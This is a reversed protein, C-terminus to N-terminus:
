YLLRLKVVSHTNSHGLVGRDEEFHWSNQSLLYKDLTINEEQFGVNAKM